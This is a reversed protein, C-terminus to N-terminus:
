PAIDELKIKVGHYGDVTMELGPRFRPLFDRLENLGVKPAVTVFSSVIKDSRTPYDTSNGDFVLEGERTSCFGAAVMREGSEENLMNSHLGGDSLRLDLENDPKLVLVYKAARGDKRHFTLIEAFGSIIYVKHNVNRLTLQREREIQEASLNERELFDRRVLAPNQKPETKTAPPPSNKKPTEPKKPEDHPPEAKPQGEGTPPHPSQAGLGFFGGLKSLWSMLAIGFFEKIGTTLIDVFLPAVSLPPEVVVAGGAGARAFILKPSSIPSSFLSASTLLGLSGAKPALLSHAAGINIGANSGFARVVNIMSRDQETTVGFARARADMEVRVGRILSSGAM